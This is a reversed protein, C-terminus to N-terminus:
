FRSSSSHPYFSFLPPFKISRGRFWRRFRDAQCNLWASGDRIMRRQALTRYSVRNNIAAIVGLAIAVLIVVWVLAQQMQGAEAAFYLAIPMTQTRGPISGALMLTAGFEGLARAFALITGAAVGPWALPLMVQWFIRDESAGLTRACAIVDGNIQEFAGLATKYMLPCAVVTAAIVAAPWSLILTVGLQQLLQGIPSNRGLLILLLFGVVTPPLVIPLTLLGDIIGRAKGQYQVMWRALTIGAVFALVTAVFATKLSIWLPSLDFEM